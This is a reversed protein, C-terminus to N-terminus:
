PLFVVEPELLVGHEAQVTDQIVKMLDKVDQATASGTNVVFGAHKTSVQAGGVSRGKLGCEDIHAAAYGEPPRKFTSGASPLELPQSTRRKQILEDMRARIETKDGNALRFFAGLILHNNETFSTHRYTFFLDKADTVLIEGEPTLHRVAVVCDKIEGGYAGANMFVAGGVSGPIGHAFELGTLGNELAFMALRALIVGAECYILNDEVLKMQTLGDTLQIVAGDYDEDAFLVNSGNGIILFPFNEEKFLQLIGLLAQEDQPIVVYKAKGGIRFSTHKRMPEDCLVTCNFQALRNHM